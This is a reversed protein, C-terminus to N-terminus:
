EYVGEDTVVHGKVTVWGDQGGTLETSIRDNYGNYSWGYVWWQNLGEMRVSIQVNTDSGTEYDAYIRSEYEYLQTHEGRSVPHAPDDIAVELGCKPALMAESGFPYRTNIEPEVELNMGFGFLELVPTEDSYEGSTMWEDAVDPDNVPDDEPVAVPYSHYTPVIEDATISLMPGYETDVLSFNWGEPMNHLNESILSEAVKSRNEFVPVPLYFTVNELTSSTAIVVGYEYDSRYSDEYSKEGSYIGIAGIIVLLLVFFLVVGIGLKRFWNM